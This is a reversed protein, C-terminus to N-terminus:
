RRDRMGQSNKAGGCQKPLKLFIGKVKYQMGPVCTTPRGKTVEVASRPKNEKFTSATVVCLLFFHNHM